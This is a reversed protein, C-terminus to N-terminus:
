RPEFERVAVLDQAKNPQADAWSVTRRMRGTPRVLTPETVRSPEKEAREATHAADPSADPPVDAAVHAGGEDAVASMGQPTASM